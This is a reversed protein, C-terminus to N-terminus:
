MNQWKLFEKIDLNYRMSDIKHIGILFLCYSSVSSGRGVGWVIRHERMLDVLYILFRLLPYLGGSRYLALEDAVREAQAATSIRQAFWLDVDLDRYSEPMRWENTMDDVSRTKHISIKFPLPISLQRTSSTIEEFLSSDVLIEGPLKEQYMLEMIDSESMILSGDLEKRM